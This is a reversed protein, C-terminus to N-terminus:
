PGPERFARSARYAELRRKILQALRPNGTHTARDLAQQATRVAETFNGTEALAAALVDLCRPDDSPLLTCVRRALRVAEPGDRLDDQTATALIWALRLLSPVHDPALALGRRLLGAAMAPRGALGFLRALRNYTDHDDPRLTLFREFSAQADEPRGLQILTVGLNYYAEAFDPQHQIAVRYHTVADDYAGQDGIANALNNHTQANDPELAIAQRYLSIAEEVRGLRVLVDGMVTHAAGSQPEAHLIEVCLDLAEDLRAANMLAQALQLRAHPYRADIELAARFEAVAGAQDGSQAFAQALNAHTLALHPALRVAARFVQIAQAFRGQQVFITGLNTYAERAAPDLELVHAYQRLADDLRGQNQATAAVQLLTEPDDPLVAAALAALRDAETDKGAWRLVKALNRQAIAHDRRDMSQEFKEAIADALTDGWEPVPTAIEQTILQDLVMRGLLRNVALTPHVHDLFDDAGLLAHGHQRRSRAELRERFDILPVGHQRAVASLITQMEPLIRLPCVDETVARELHARAEDLRGLALLSQGYAYHLYAHRDDLKLAAEFAAVAAPHDSRKAADTGANFQRDWAEIAEDSLGGAHQSKFPAFDRVNAAPNVFLIGAGASRALAVMRGLNYRYHDLIQSRLADDRRYLDLGASSDLMASVEAALSARQPTTATSRPEFSRVTRRILTCLRSRRLALHLRTVVPHEEIIGAYTRRELFENHGSYVIFLDPEYRILEEMLMAVRYSAYSIGGGNIVQWDRSPDTAPLFRRLWGVFSTRDDYPRGYTTSGGLCFIRYARDSKAAPFRQDNFLGRKNAATRYIPQGSPDETPVFLPIRSQFGVYPDEAVGDARVGILALGLELTLFTAAIVISAFLLKKRTTLRSVAPLARRRRGADGPPKERRRSKAHKHGAM